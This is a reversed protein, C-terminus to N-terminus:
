SVRQGQYEDSAGSEQSDKFVALQRHASTGREVIKGFDMFIIEDDQNFEVGGKSILKATLGKDDSQLSLSYSYNGRVVMTQLHTQRPKETASARSDHPKSEPTRLREQHTM